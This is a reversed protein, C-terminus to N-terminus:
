VNRDVALLGAQDPILPASPVAQLYFALSQSTVTNIRQELVAITLTNLESITLQLEGIIRGNESM